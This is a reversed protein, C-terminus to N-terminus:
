AAIKKIQAIKRRLEDNERRLNHNENGLIVIKKKLNMMEKKVEEVEEGSVNKLKRNIDSMDVDVESKKFGGGSADNLKEEIDDEIILKNDIQDLRIMGETVMTRVETLINVIATSQQAPSPEKDAHNENIARLKSHSFTKTAREWQSKELLHSAIGLTIDNLRSFIEALVQDEWTLIKELTLMRQEIAQAWNADEEEIMKIFREQKTKGSTEILQLLQRFGGSKKYRALMSM